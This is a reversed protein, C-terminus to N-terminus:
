RAGGAPAGLALLLLPTGDLEGHRGLADFYLSNIGGLLCCGIGLAGAALSLTQAAAGAELLALRYALAEYKWSLLDYRVSVLLLVQPQRQPQGWYRAAEEFLPSLQESARPLRAISHERDDYRYLGAACGDLARVAVSFRLAHLGGPSPYAKRAPSGAQLRVSHQLLASIQELSLLGPGHERCTRREALVESWPTAAAPRPTPLALAAGVRPAGPEPQGRSGLFRYTAGFPVGSRSFTSRRHFRLDEPAWWLEDGEESEPQAFGTMSLLEWFRQAEPSARGPDLLAAALSPALLVMRCAARPSEVRWGEPGPELSLFRCAGSARRPALWSFSPSQPVIRLLTREGEQWEFGLAGRALLSFAAQRLTELSADWRHVLASETPGDQLLSLVRAEQESQAEEVGGLATIRLFSPALWIRQPPTDLM